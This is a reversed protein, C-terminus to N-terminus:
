MIFCHSKDGSEESVEELTEFIAPLSAALLRVDELRLEVIDTM